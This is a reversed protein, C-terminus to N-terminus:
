TAEKKKKSDYITSSHVNQHRYRNSNTNENKEPHISLLAIAPDYPIKIKIKSSSEYQKGYPSCWNVYRGVTYSHERKELILIKYNTSKEIAIRVPTLCYRMTSKIETERIILSTSCKKMQRNAIQIDERSFHRNM